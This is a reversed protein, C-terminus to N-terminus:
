QLFQSRKRASLNTSPSHGSHPYTSHLLYPKYKTLRSRFLHPRPRGIILSWCYDVLILNGRYQIDLFERGMKNYYTVIYFPDLSSPCVYKASTLIYKIVPADYKPLYQSALPSWHSAQPFSILATSKFDGRHLSQLWAGDMLVLLCRNMSIGPRCALRSAQISEQESFHVLLALTM